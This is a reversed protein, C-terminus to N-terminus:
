ALEPGFAVTIGSNDFNPVLGTIAVAKQDTGDWDVAIGELKLAAELARAASLKNFYVHLRNKDNIPRKWADASQRHYFVYPKGPYKQSLEFGGCSQCCSFSMRAIVGTGRTTKFAAKVADYLRNNSHHLM